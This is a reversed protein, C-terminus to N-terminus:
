FVTETTKVIEPVEDASLFNFDYCEKNYKESKYKYTKIYCEGNKIAKVSDEDNIIETVVEVKHKPLNLFSDKLIAVAQNGGNLNDKILFLGKIQMTANEPYDSLKKYSFNETNMGWDITKFKNYKGFNM